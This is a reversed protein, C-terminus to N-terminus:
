RKSEGKEEVKRSAKKLGDFFQEGSPVPLDFGTETKQKKSPAFDLTAGAQNKARMEADIKKMMEVLDPQMIVEKIKHAPVVPAIGMNVAEAQTMTFEEPVEWHGIVSGFFLIKGAGSLIVPQGDEDGVHVGITPRVFVPSGSLGGISRSEILHAEYMGKYFPIREDPMMAINGIRVIPINQSTETVKTFLGTIFVEDGVGVNHEQIKEQDAFLGIPVHEIDLEALRAPTFM